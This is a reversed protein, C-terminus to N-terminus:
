KWAWSSSGLLPQTREWFKSICGDMFFESSGLVHIARGAKQVNVPHSETEANPPFPLLLEKFAHCTNGSIVLANWLRRRRCFFFFVIGSNCHLADNCQLWVLSKICTLSALLCSNVYFDLLRSVYMCGQDRWIHQTWPAHWILLDYFKSSSSSVQEFESSGFGATLPQLFSVAPHSVNQVLSRLCCIWILEDVTGAVLPANPPTLTDHSGWQVRRSTKRCSQKVLLMSLCSKLKVKSPFTIPVYNLNWCILHLSLYIFILNVSLSVKEFYKCGEQLCVGVCVNQNGKDWYDMWSESVNILSELRSSGVFIVFM